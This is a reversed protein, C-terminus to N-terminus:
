LRIMRVPSGKAAAPAHPPRVLLVNAGALPLVMGSDQLALPTAIPGAPGDSLAARMYDHRDGNARLDAGLIATEVALTEPKRGLLRRVAPVLFLYGCVFASVPNGPLGLMPLVGIRGYMLPKGPRMAIRWFDLALGLEGFATRILDHEGVSAGGSTVLLDLNHALAAAGLRKLEAKNDPAIGLDVVDAGEGALLAALMLTNSSVVQGPGCPAGPPVLEDGSALLGVRPRRRVAVRGVNAAAIVSIQGAGIWAGARLVAQGATFDLGKVRVHRGPRAAERVTVTDGQRVTDEQLVIADAGEPLAAGTFIRAAQGPGLTKAPLRGAPIEEIIALSVPANQVDAARVAYGDMASIDRDPKNLRAVIDAALVRGLIHNGAAAIDVEEAALPALPALIAALAEDVTLLRSKSM